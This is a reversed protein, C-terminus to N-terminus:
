PRFGGKSVYPISCRHLAMNLRYSDAANLFLVLLRQAPPFRAAAELSSAALTESGADRGSRQKVRPGMSRRAIESGAASGHKALVGAGKASAGQGQVLV